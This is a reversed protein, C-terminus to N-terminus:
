AAAPHRSNGSGTRGACQDLFDLALEAGARGRRRNAPRRGRGPRRDRGLHRRDRRAAGAPVSGALITLSLPSVLAAGLGQIARTTILVEANPALACAASAATFLVLGTVYMRRRGFKDGLAAATIIGAAFALTYANITWELTSVNGGLGAHIAPLATVVVLADLATMFFAVSTLALAWRQQARM